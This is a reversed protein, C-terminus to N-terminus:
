FGRTDLSPAVSPTEFFVVNQSVRVRRTDSNYIRYFKSGDSFGVLQGEWARNELKNTHVEKHVLARSRIVRLHGLYADKGYLAKCLTGTQLASHPTRNSLYVTTKMLVMWLFNPLTSDALFCRVIYLTTRGARENAGIQQPTNPSAFELKIGVDQCYQRFEASTLETDREGRLTHILEGTPFSTEEVFM